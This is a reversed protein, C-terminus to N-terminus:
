PPPYNWTARKAAAIDDNTAAVIVDVPMLVLETALV